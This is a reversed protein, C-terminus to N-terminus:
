AQLHNVWVKIVDPSGYWRQRPSHYVEELTLNTAGELHAAMIPTIGDGWTDGIGCTLKYSEYAIWTSGSLQGARWAQWGLKQGQVARGAVCVYDVAPCYSGPYNDNVFNLNKLTWREQSTHPTGLAILSAVREQGAWVQGYYPVSGLYIRSLWGGASHAVINVKPVDFVKQVARITQDLRTLIPNISRGGVTPLWNQSKLPVVRAPYGWDELQQRMPEYESSGALYGPLIVTPYAKM